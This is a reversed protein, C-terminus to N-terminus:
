ENSKLADIMDVKKLKRHMMVMVILSFVLTLVIAFVFSRPYIYPSFMMNDQEATQLVFMHLVKGMFMGAFIGLATLISNERLIYMTVEGDYFGLVKITSLERIRESVNINNLNYLVVLALGGASVILIVVVVNLTEMTDQSTSALKSSLTVNIVKDCEMLKSAVQEEKSEDADLKLFQSNFVPEKVFTKRYYTKSMYMSHSLYSEVVNDVVVEFSNNNEDEFSITDGKSVDLLNALKESIIVGKNTLEYKEGSVRDNLLVFESLDEKSEPVFLSVSQKNMNEKSFSVMEQHINLSDKYEKTEKLASNYEEDEEVSSEEEFTVIAQYDWLKNFQKDTLDNISDQLGFGTVIMGTCAAIGFVTMIMRQKYR